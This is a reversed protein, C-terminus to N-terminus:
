AKWCGKALTLQARCSVGIDEKFAIWKTWSLLRESKKLLSLERCTRSIVFSLFITLLYAERQIIHEAYKTTIAVLPYFLYIPSCIFFYFLFNRKFQNFLLYNFFFFIIYNISHFFTFLNKLEFAYDISLSTIIEGLLGRRIFGGDYNVLLGKIGILENFNLHFILINFFYISSIALM